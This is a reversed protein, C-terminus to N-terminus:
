SGFMLTTLEDKIRAVEAPDTVDPLREALETLRAGKGQQAALRRQVLQAMVRHARRQRELGDQPGFVAEGLEEGLREQEDPDKSNQLRECVDHLRAAAEDRHNLGTEILMVLTRHASTNSRKALEKARRATEKSLIVTQRVTKATARKPKPALRRNINRM